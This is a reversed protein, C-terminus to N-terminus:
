VNREIEKVLYPAVQRLLDTLLEEAVDKANAKLYRAFIESMIVSVDAVKYTGRYIEVVIKIDNAGPNSGKSTM